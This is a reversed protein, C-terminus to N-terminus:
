SGKPREWGMAAFTADLAADQADDINTIPKPKPTDAGTSGNAAGPKVTRGVLNRAKQANVQQKAAEAKAKATEQESKTRFSQKESSRHDNVDRAWPVIDNTIIQKVADFAAPPIMTDGNPTQVRLHNTLLVLRAGIEDPSVEPLHQTITTVAPAISGEFFQNSITRAQDFAMMQREQQVQQMQLQARAEPTNQAEYQARATLYADDSSLLQEREAQLQKAYALLQTNQQQIAQAEQRAQMSAQEREENYVGREALRVVKDLSERRQKGNANFEITIDPVELEGDADVVKFSTALERNTIAPVAVMGDPLAPPEPTTAPTPDPETADIEKPTFRGKEDRAVQSEETPTDIPNEALTQAIADQTISALADDVAFPSSQDAPANSVIAPATM